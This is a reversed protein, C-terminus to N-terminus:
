RFAYNPLTILEIESSYGPWVGSQKCQHFKDLDRRYETRGLERSAEDLMVANAAFPWDTEVAVFIFALVEAGTAERFGDSYFADQVHYRKRLVQRRFENGSADSYTKVDLVIVQSDGVPVVFDPRCRCLEGTVEDIWYASVEAKGGTRALADRIEPLARVSEAQRMAVDYQSSTIITKDGNRRMFDDWYAVRERSSESPNKANIMAETPRQPAGEPAFAYRDMFTDPELIACHALNGELQGARETRPPRKPDLHLAYYHLGSRNIDDLGSKSIGPGGHYQLIPMDNRIGLPHDVAANM